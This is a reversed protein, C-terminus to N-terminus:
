SVATAARPSSLGRDAKVPNLRTAYSERPLNDVTAVIRRVVEELNFFKALAPKGLLGALGEIM